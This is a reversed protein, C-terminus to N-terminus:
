FVRARLDDLARVVAAFSARVHDPAPVELETTTFRLGCARCRRRRRVAPAAYHTTRRTDVVQSSSGCRCPYSM